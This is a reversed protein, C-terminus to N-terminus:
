TMAPSAPSVPKSTCIRCTPSPSKRPSASSGPLPGGFAAARRLRRIGGHTALYQDICQEACPQFPRGPRCKRIRYVSDIRAPQRHQRHVHGGADTAISPSYETFGNVGIDGDAEDPGLQAQMRARRQATTAVEYVGPQAHGLRNEVLSGPQGRQRRHRRRQGRPPRGKCTMPGAVQNDDARNLM